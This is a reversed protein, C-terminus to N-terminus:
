RNESQRDYFLGKIIIEEQEKLKRLIIMIAIPLKGSNFQKALQNINVGIKKLELYTDLDIRAPLPVPFKGTLVKKRIMASLSLGCAAAAKELSKHEIETLRITFNISRIAEKTICPRGMFEFNNFTLNLIQYLNQDWIKTLSREAVGM